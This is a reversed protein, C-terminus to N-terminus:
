LRRRLRVVVDIGSVEFGEPIEPLRDIVVSDAPIDCLMNEDEIYFHHHQSPNTDYFATAGDIGIRRLLGAETFHNLTNYVTALSMPVRAKQTEEHLIGATIHRHGKSFLLRGLVIRQRTPRLGARRLMGGCDVWNRDEQKSRRWMLRLELDLDADAPEFSQHAHMDEMPRVM